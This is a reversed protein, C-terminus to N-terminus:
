SVWWWCPTRAQRLLMWLLMCLCGWRRWWRGFVYVSCFGYKRTSGRQGVDGDDSAYAFNYMYYLARWYRSARKTPSVSRRHNVDITTRSCSVCLVFCQEYSMSSYRSNHVSHQKRPRLPKRSIYNFNDVGDFVLLRMCVVVVVVSVNACWISNTQHWYKHIVYVCMNHQLEYQLVPYLAHLNTM